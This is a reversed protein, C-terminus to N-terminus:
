PCRSRLAAGGRPAAVAKESRRVLVGNVLVHHVGTAEEHPSVFTARDTLVDPDFVVLDAAMGVAVVGRDTVGLISAALSTAKRVGEELTYLHQERVWPGLARAFTGHGRPHSSTRSGDTGFAVFPDRALRMVLAPDMVRYAAEGGAPGIALLVEEFPRGESLAVEELTRGVYRGPGFTMAGPGNRATVRARLHERITDAHRRRADAWTNPPRALSPFLIAVTTYSADYPYLDATVRLGEGRARELRSLIAEARPAGEGLVVKLHAVHVPVKTRRGLELLEDISAEVADDDESRLHAMGVGCDRAPRLAAELEALDAGRAGDYELGFSVGFAGDRLATAVQREVVAARDSASRGRGSARATSHGVLTAVNVGIASRDVKALLEGVSPEPSVGDQGLVVTTVGMASLHKTNSFPDAHSHLDIFGPTVVLGRADLEERASQAEDIVGVHTITGRDIGVDARRRPHGLGDIIEGGRLVRDFPTARLFPPPAASAVTPASSSPEASELSPLPEQLHTPACAVAVLAFAAFSGQARSRTDGVAAPM